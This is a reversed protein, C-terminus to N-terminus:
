MESTLLIASPQLFRDGSRQKGEGDSMIEYSLCLKIFRRIRSQHILVTSSFYLARCGVPQRRSYLPKVVHSLLTGLSELVPM